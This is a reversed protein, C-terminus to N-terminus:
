QIVVSTEVVGPPPQGQSQGPSQGPVAAALFISPALNAMVPGKRHRALTIAPALESLGGERKNIYQTMAVQAAVYRADLLAARTKPGVIGDVSLGNLQQFRKVAANTKPGFISDIKLPPAGTSDLHFNLLSQLNKVAPGSSGQSLYDM